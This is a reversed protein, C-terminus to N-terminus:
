FGRLRCVRGINEIMHYDDNDTYWEVGCLMAVFGEDGLTIGFSRAMNAARSPEIGNNLFVKEVRQVISDKRSALDDRIKCISRYPMTRGGTDLALTMVNEPRSNAYGKATNYYSSAYVAIGYCTGGTSGYIMENEVSSYSDAILVCHEHSKGTLGRWLKRFRGNATLRDYEAQDILKMYNNAWRKKGICAAFINVGCHQDPDTRLNFYKYPTSFKGFYSDVSKVVSEPLFEEIRDDIDRASWLMPISSVQKSRSLNDRIDQVNANLKFRLKPKQATQGNPQIAAEKSSAGDASTFEGTAEDHYPNGQTNTSKTAM